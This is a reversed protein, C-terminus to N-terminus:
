LNSTFQAIHEVMHRKDLNKYDFSKEQNFDYELTPM